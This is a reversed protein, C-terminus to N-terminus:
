EQECLLNIFYDAILQMGNADPHMTTNAVRLM